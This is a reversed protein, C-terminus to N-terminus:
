DNILKRFNGYDDTYFVKKLEYKKILAECRRCPRSNVIKGNRLFRVNYLVCERLSGILHKRKYKRLVEFESHRTKRLYININSPCSDNIGWVLPFDNHFILSVHLSKNLANVKCVYKRALEIVRDEVKSM